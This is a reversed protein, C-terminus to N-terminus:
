KIVVKKGNQIYVGKKTPEGDLKRGDLSYWADAHDTLDSLDTHCIGTQTGEGTNMVFRRVTAGGNAPVKFHARFCKLTRPNKSYGLTSGSGLMIIENLHGQNEGLVVDNAVISFPSYQGVFECAGYANANNAFTV